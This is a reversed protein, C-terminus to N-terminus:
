IEVSILLAVGPLPLVFSERSCGPNRCRWRSLELTLTVPSGQMPLDQLRRCYRGKRSGSLSGCGPCVAGQGGSARAVWERGHRRADLAKVGLDLDWNIKL